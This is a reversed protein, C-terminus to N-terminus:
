TKKNYPKRDPKGIFRIMKGRRLSYGSSRANTSFFGELCAVMEAEEASACSPIFRWDSLVPHDLHDRIVIGIGATKSIEDWGADVNAKLGGEAPAVWAYPGKSITHDLLIPKTVSLFSQL